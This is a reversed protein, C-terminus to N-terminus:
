WDLKETEKEAQVHLMSYEPFEDAHRGTVEHLRDMSTEFADQEDDSLDRVFRAPNGAWVQGSPIERYPPVVTGPELISNSRVLSGELVVCNDGVICYNQIVCSRLLTNHGITCYGGVHTAPSLGNALSSVSHLVASDMVNTQSGIYVPARDGRVVCNYMVSARVGVYVDGILSANPAVFADPQSYPTKLFYPQHSRHRPFIPHLPPKPWVWSIEERHKLSFFDPTGKWDENPRDEWHISRAGVVARATPLLRVAREVRFLSRM